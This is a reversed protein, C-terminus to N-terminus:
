LNDAASDIWAALHEIEAQLKTVVFPNSLAPLPISRIVESFAELKAKDPAAAAKKAAKEAAIKEEQIRAKEKAESRVKAELEARLKAAEAAAAEAEARAKAEIAEREKRAESEAREREERAAKAAREFEERAKRQEEAREAEVRKREIEALRATEIAAAKLKENEAAIREREEREAKERAIREAEAKAAAEIKSQHLLKADSLAAAYAEPSLDSIDGLLPTSLFPAIEQERSIKTEAKLKAAHREAFQESELLKAELEEIQERIVRATSDIKTTRAKLGEVLGKRTKDMAVRADKLELRALRAQAMETKQSIDTVVLAAAKSKWKELTTQYPQFIEVLPKATDLQDTNVSGAPQGKTITAIELTNM